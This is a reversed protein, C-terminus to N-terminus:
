IAPDMQVKEIMLALEMMSTTAMKEMIRRRHIKVTVESIGLVAAVQKNILGTLLSQMVQLERRTLSAAKRRIVDRALRQDHAVTARALADRIANLLDAERFPKPLFEVAGAKMAQVTMSIDAYGTIFIIPIAARAKLLEQQLELGSLGPLRVDLVLCCPAKPLSGHIVDWASDFALVKFGASRILNTLSERVGRDDDVVLVVPPAINM